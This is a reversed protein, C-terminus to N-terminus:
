DDSSERKRKEAIMESTIDYAIKAAMEQREKGQPSSDDVRKRQMDANIYAQMALGAFHDLLTMGKKGFVEHWREGYKNEDEYADIKEITPWAPGGTDKKSM